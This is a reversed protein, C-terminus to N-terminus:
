LSVSQMGLRSIVLQRFASRYDDIFVQHQGFYVATVTSVILSQGIITVKTGGAVPGYLPRVSRVSIDNM